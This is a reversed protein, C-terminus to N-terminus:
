INKKKKGNLRWYDKLNKVKINEKQKLVRLQYRYKKLKKGNEV